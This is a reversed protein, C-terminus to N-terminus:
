LHTLWSTLLSSAGEEQQEEDTPLDEQRQGTDRVANVTESQSVTVLGIAM